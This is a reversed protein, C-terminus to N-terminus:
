GPAEAHVTVPRLDVRRPAVARLKRRRRADVAFYRTEHEARRFGVSLALDSLHDSLISGVPPYVGDVTPAATGYVNGDPTILVYGGEKDELLRPHIELEPFEAQLTAVTEDFRPRDLEFQERNRYGLGVPSFELLCWMLVNTFPRLLEGIGTIALHNPRSVITRVVVPVGSEELFHLLAVVRQHNGRTGRFDDHARGISADLSLGVLDAQALARRVGATVHHGNTHVEVLLGLTRAHEVLEALDPRLSPDGGAFVITAAGATAAARLLRRGDDTALPIGQTRYCFACRLNCDAWCEWHVKHAGIRRLSGACEPRVASTQCGGCYGTVSTPQEISASPRTHMM